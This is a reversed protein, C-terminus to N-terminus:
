FELLLRSVLTSGHKIVLESKKLRKIEFLQFVFDSLNIIITILKGSPKM